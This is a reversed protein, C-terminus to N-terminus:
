IKQRGFIIAKPHDYVSLTEDAYDDVFSIGMQSCDQLPRAAKGYSIGPSTLCLNFGPIPINPRSTFQAIPVFGLSGDFLSKYFQNTTPYQEPVTMISGYLRNSSLVIYDVQSLRSQILSWKQPSDPDYLPFEVFQFNPHGGWPLCDDWHECSIRSGPPLNEAIWRSAEIRSHPRTYISTFSFPWVLILIVYLTNRIVSSPHLIKYAMFGAFIALFPYVPYFYRLPQAYQFSQYTFLLLAWFLALFTPPHRYHYILLYFLGFIVLLGLPLGLGWLLNNELSYWSPIHTWQVGPPYYIYPKNFSNLQQWNALVKPNLHFNDQFLYPQALRVTLYLTITFLLLSLIKPRSFIFGLAIVPLFLLASIKAAVALGFAIGLLLYRRTVLTYFTLSLFFVLFSDVAFFHSLQISLVSSAYGLAGLVAIVRKGFLRFSILYVLILTGLDFVASIARGVLTLQNYDGKGLFEAIFKVFIVPFTGYVYFGYGINHPNLPSTPTNLYHSLNRPWSMANAVMTLFREDPHLHGNQDWNLGYLRLGAALLFIVALVKLNRPM